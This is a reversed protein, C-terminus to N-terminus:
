IGQLMEFEQESLSMVLDASMAGDATDSEKIFMPLATIDVVKADVTEIPPLSKVFDEYTMGVNINQTEQKPKGLMRDFIERVSEFNGQAAREALKIVMVEGNTMGQFRQEDAPVCVCGYDCKYKIPEYEHAMSAAILSNVTAKTYPESYVPVPVGNEWRHFKGSQRSM